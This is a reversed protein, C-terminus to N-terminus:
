ITWMPQKYEKRISNEFNGTFNEKEETNTNKPFYKKVQYNQYIKYGAYAAVAIGVGILIKTQTTM